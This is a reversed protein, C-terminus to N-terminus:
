KPPRLSHTASAATEDEPHSPLWLPPMAVVPMSMRSLSSHLFERWYPWVHAMVSRAGFREQERRTFNEPIDTYEAAFQAEIEAVIPDTEPSPKAQDVVLRYTFAFRTVYLLGSDTGKETDMMTTIGQDIGAMQGGLHHGSNLPNFTEELRTKSARLYIGRMKRPHRPADTM